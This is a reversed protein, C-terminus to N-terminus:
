GKDNKVEEFVRKCNRCRLLSHEEIAKYNVLEKRFGLYELWGGCEPCKTAGRSDFYEQPYIPILEKTSGM